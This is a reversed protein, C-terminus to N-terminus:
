SDPEAGGCEGGTAESSVVHASDSFDDSINDFVGRAIRHSCVSSFYNAFERLRVWEVRFELLFTGSLKRELVAADRAMLTM